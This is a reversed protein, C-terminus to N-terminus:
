RLCKWVDAAYEKLIDESLTISHEGPAPDRLFLDRFQLRLPGGQVVTRVLTSNPQIREAM